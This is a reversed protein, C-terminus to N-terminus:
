SRIERLASQINKKSSLNFMLIQIKNLPVAMNSISHDLVCEDTQRCQTQLKVHVSTQKTHGHQRDTVICLMHIPVSLHLKNDLAGVYSSLETSCNNQLTVVPSM